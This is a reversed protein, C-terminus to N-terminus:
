GPAKRNTKGLPALWGISVRGRVLKEPTGALDMTLMGHAKSDIEVAMSAELDITSGDLARKGTVLQAGARRRRVGGDSRQESENGPDYFCRFWPGFSLVTQYGGEVRTNSKVNTVIRARDRLQGGLM